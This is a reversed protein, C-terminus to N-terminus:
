VPESQNSTLCTNNKTFVADPYWWKTGFHRHGATSVQAETINFCLLVM